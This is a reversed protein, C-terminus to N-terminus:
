AAVRQSAERPVEVIPFHIHSPGTVSAFLRRLASGDPHSVTACELWVVGDRWVPTTHSGCPCYPRADTAREILDIIQTDHSM